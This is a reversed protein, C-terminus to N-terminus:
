ATQRTETDIIWREVSSVHHRVMFSRQGVRWLADGPPLTSVRSVEAESLQLLERLGKLENSPQQYIVRTESDSLLGRALEIEESGADGIAALDSLRHMVAINQVGWPRALKWSENFFRAVGPVRLVKWAEDYVIVRRRGEDESETLLRRLWASVCIMVVGLSTSKSIGSVDFAVVPSALVIGATTPGDFMGRLDGEVLRRLGHAVDRLVNQTGEASMYMSAAVDHDPNLMVELVDRLTPERSQATARVAALGVAVDVGTHEISELPRGVAAEVLSDMLEIRAQHIAEPRRDRLLAELPNLRVGGGPRLSVYVGGAAQCLRKYEPKVDLIWVQRGFALQRWCYTKILSSKRAGLKGFVVMNPGQIVSPYFQWPDYCFAGGHLDQGIYVGDSGLGAEAMWPYAAGVHATTAHHALLPAGLRINGVGM